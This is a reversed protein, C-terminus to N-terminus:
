STITFELGAYKEVWFRTQSIKACNGDMFKMRLSGGDFLPVSAGIMLYAQLIDGPSVIRFFGRGDTRSCASANTISQDEVVKSSAKVVCFGIM